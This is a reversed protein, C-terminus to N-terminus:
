LQFPEQGPRPSTTLLRLPGPPPSAERGEMLAPLPCPLHGSGMGWKTGVRAGTSFASVRGRGLWDAWTLGKCSAPCGPWSGPGPLVTYSGPSGHAEPRAPRNPLSAVKRHTVALHGGCEQGVNGSDRSGEKAPAQGGLQAGAPHEPGQGGRCNQGLRLGKWPGWNAPLLCFCPLTLRLDCLQPQFCRSARGVGGGCM